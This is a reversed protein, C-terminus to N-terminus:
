PLRKAINRIVEEEEQTLQLYNISIKIREGSKWDWIWFYIEGYKSTVFIWSFVTFSDIEFNEQKLVM